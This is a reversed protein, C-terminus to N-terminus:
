IVSGQFFPNRGAGSHRISHINGLFFYKAFTEAQTHKLLPWNEQERWIDARVRNRSPSKAFGMIGPM